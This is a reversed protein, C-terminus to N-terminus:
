NAPREFIKEFRHAQPDFREVRSRFKELSIKRINRAAHDQVDPQWSHAAQVKLDHQFLCCNMNWDDEHSPVAIDRHCDLSHLSARGIEQGFGEALLYHEFC